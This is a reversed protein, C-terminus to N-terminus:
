YGPFVRRVDDLSVNGSVEVDTPTYTPTLRGALLRVAAEAEGTFTATADAASTSLSVQREIVITVGASPVQVRAPEALEDARGSFGLLFSLGGTFHEILIESARPDLTAASDLAVRVDWGHLVAENLRMGAVSALPLPAPLFGLKVQVNERLEPTLGELTDVLAADEKLFGAAQDQPALGNWREWVDENFDQGPPDIGEIAARYGALAIEAGSGMHSLVQAVTWESAGSPGSLQDGSLGPVLAALEDHTTRLAAITRDALTSM